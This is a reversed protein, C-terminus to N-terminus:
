RLRRIEIPGIHLQWEFLKRLPDAPGPRYFRFMLTRWFVIYYKRIVRTPM